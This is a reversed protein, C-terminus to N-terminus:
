DVWYDGPIQCAQWGGELINEETIEASCLCGNSTPMDGTFLSGLLINVPHGEAGFHLHVVHKFVWLVGDDLDKLHKALPDTM